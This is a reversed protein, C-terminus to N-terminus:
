GLSEMADDFGVRGFEQFQRNTVEFRDMDYAPLQDRLWGIFKIFGGWRGAPIPVVGARLDAVPPISPQVVDTSREPAAVFEGAGAKSVRWRLVGNPIKARKLPTTGLSFWAGGPPLYDQIEVRAEAPTTKVSVFRTSNRDIQTLQPDAPLYQEARRLLLFAALPKRAGAVKTIEPIAEERASRHHESREYLGTGVAIMGLLVAAAPVTYAPRLFSRTPPAELQDALASLDRAADAAPLIRRASDKLLLKAILRDLSAPIGTRQLSPPPVEAQTDSTLMRGLSVGPFPLEGVAMEYLVLGLAFLDTRADAERGEVQEPAM